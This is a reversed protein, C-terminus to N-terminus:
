MFVNALVIDWVEEIIESTGKNNLELCLLIDGFFIALFIWFLISVTRLLFSFIDEKETYPMPDDHIDIQQCSVNKLQDWIQGLQTM